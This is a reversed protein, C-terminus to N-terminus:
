RDRVATVAVQTKATEDLGFALSVAASPHEDAKIVETLKREYRSAESSVCGTLLGASLCLGAAARTHYRWRM